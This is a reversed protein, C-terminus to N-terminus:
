CFWVVITFWVMLGMVGIACWNALYEFWQPATAWYREATTIALLVAGIVTLTLLM